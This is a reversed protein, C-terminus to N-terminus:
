QKRGRKVGKERKVGEEREESREGEESRKVAEEREESRERKVGEERWKKREESRGGSTEVPYLRLSSALLPSNGMGTHRLPSWVGLVLM